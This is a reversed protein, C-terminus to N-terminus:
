KLFHKLFCSFIDIVSHIFLVSEFHHVVGYGLRIYVVADVDSRGKGAKIECFFLSM